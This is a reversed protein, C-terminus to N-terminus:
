MSKYNKSRNEEEEAQKKLREIWWQRDEATMNEQEFLTMKGHYHLIFQEEM